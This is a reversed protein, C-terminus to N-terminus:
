TEMEKIIKNILERDFKPGFIKKDKVFLNELEKKNQVEVFYLKNNADFIEFMLPYDIKKESLM